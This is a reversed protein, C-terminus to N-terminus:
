ISAQELGAGHAKVQRLERATKAVKAAVGGHREGPPVNEPEPKLRLRRGYRQLELRQVQKHLLSLEQSFGEVELSRRHELQGYQKKLRVVIAELEKVRMALAQQLGNHQDKLVGMTRETDSVQRRFLAVYQESSQKAAIKTASVEASTEAHLAELEEKSADAELRLQEVREVDARHAQLSAHKIHLFDKTYKSLMEQTRALEAEARQLREAEAARRAHEESIRLRRDELLAAVRERGLREQASLQSRLSEITLLLSDVKENPLYVTRLVRTGDGGGGSGGGRGSPVAVGGAASSGAPSSRTTARAHPHVAMTEPPADRVYTVDQMVPEVLSLLHQIKRRDESEQIRLEDNEAQLRACREREEGLYVHCDSLAKQLDSIEEMRQRLEWKQAHQAAHGVDIADIRQRLDAMEGESRQVRERYYALLEASLPARELGTDEHSDHMATPRNLVPSHM